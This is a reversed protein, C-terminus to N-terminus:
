LKNNVSTKYSNHYVSFQKFYEGYMEWYTEIVSSCGRMISDYDEIIKKEDIIDLQKM